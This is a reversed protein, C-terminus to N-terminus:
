MTGLFFLGILARRTRNEVDRSIAFPIPICYVVLDFFMNM